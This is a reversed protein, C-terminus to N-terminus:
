YITYLVSYNSCIEPTSLVGYKVMRFLTTIEEKKLNQPKVLQTLDAIFYSEYTKNAANVQGTICM